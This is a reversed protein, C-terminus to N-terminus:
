HDALQQHAKGLKWQDVRILRLLRVSAMQDGSRVHQELSEVAHPALARLRDVTEGFALERALDFAAQFHPDKKWRWITTRDVGAVEAAHMDTAGAVLLEIATQQRPTVPPAAYPTRYSEHLEIIRSRFEEIMQQVNQLEARVAPDALLKSEAREQLNSEIASPLNETLASHTQQLAIAVAADPEDEGPASASHQV